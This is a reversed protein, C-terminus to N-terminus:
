FGDFGSYTQTYAEGGVLSSMFDTLFYDKTDNVLAEKFRTQCGGFVTGGSLAVALTVMLKSRSNRLLKMQCELKLTGDALGRSGWGLSSRLQRRAAGM